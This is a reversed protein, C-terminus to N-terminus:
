SWLGRTARFPLGLILGAIRLLGRSASPRMGYMCGWCLLEGTVLDRAQAKGTHCMGCGADIDCDRCRTELTYGCEPCKDGARAMSPALMALAVTGTWVESGSHDWRDVLEGEPSLAWTAIVERDRYVVVTDAQLHVRVDWDREVLVSFHGAHIADARNALNRFVACGSVDEGDAVCYEGSAAIARVYVGDGSKERYLTEGSVGAEPMEILLARDGPDRAVIRHARGPGSDSTQEQRTTEEDHTKTV